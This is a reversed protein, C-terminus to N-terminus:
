EDGGEVEQESIGTIPRDSNLKSLYHAEIQKIMEINEFVTNQLIGLRPQKSTGVEQMYAYSGQKYGGKLGIDVRPYKTNKSSYVNYRTAKRAHGTHRGFNSYFTDNFRRVVFRAVDRLAARNLEYIYYNCANVNSVFEVGDKKIKIVSKPAAM